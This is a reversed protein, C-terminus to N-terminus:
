ARIYTFFHNAWVLLAWTPYIWSRGGGSALTAMQVLPFHSCINKKPHPCCIQCYLRLNCKNMWFLTEHLFYHYITLTWPLGWIPPYPLEEETMRYQWCKLTLVLPWLNPKIKMLSQWYTQIISVESSTSFPVHPTM